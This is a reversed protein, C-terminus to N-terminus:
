VNKMYKKWFRKRFFKDMKLIRFAESEEMYCISDLMSASFFSLSSSMQKGDFLGFESSASGILRLMEKCDINGRVENETKIQKKLDKLTCVPYTLNPCMQTFLEVVGERGKKSKLIEFLRKQGTFIMPFVPVYPDNTFVACLIVETRKDETNVGYATTYGVAFVSQADVILGDCATPVFFNETYVAGMTSSVLSHTMQNVVLQAEEAPLKKYRYSAMQLEARSIGRLNRYKELINDRHVIMAQYEEPTYLRGLYNEAYQIYGQVQQERKENEERRKKLCDDCIPEAPALRTSFTKGCVKCVYEKKSFIGM